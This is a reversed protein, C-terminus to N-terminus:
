QLRIPHPSYEVGKHYRGLVLIKHQQLLGLLHVGDSFLPGLNGM